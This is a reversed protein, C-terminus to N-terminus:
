SIVISSDKSVTPTQSADKQLGFKTGVVGFLSM